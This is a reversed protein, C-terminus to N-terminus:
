GKRFRRWGALGALGSGLLLLASPLPVPSLEAAEVWIYKPQVYSSWDGGTGRSELGESFILTFSGANVSIDSWYPGDQNGYSSQGGPIGYYWTPPYIPGYTAGNTLQVGNWAWVHGGASSVGYDGFTGVSITTFWKGPDATFLLSASGAHNADGSIKTGPANWYNIRYYDGGGLNTFFTTNGAVESVTFGGLKHVSIAQAAGALLVVCVVLAVALLRCKVPMGM